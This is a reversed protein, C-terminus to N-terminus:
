FFIYTMFFVAFSIAVVLNLPVGDQQYNHGDDVVTNVDTEAVSGADSHRRRSRVESVPPPQTFRVALENQLREIEAKLVKNESVLQPNIPNEKHIIVPPPAPAPTPESHRPAPKREERPPPSVYEVVPPTVIVPVPAPEPAPTPIPIPMPPPPTPSRYSPEQVAPAEEEAPLEIDQQSEDHAFSVEPPTPPRPIDVEAQDAPPAMFVSPIPGHGNGNGNPQPQITDYPNKLFNLVTSRRRAFWVSVPDNPGLTSFNPNPHAAEDEEELTQGEAPLYTVRLKQQHVRGEENTDTSAWIEQLSMSEKDPTIVTSQILFKDKCKANLPPEEKMAQLMVSVELSDGPEVRGSNPRVCYLKPATTKVKFAIPQANNNTITLSRKVLQTLPRRFGLASSPTLSVSM